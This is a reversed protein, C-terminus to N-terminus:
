AGAIFIKMEESNEGKRQKNVIRVNFNVIGSSILM